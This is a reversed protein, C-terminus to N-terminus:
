WTGQTNRIEKLCCQAQQPKATSPTNVGFYGFKGIRSSGCQTTGQIPLLARVLLSPPSGSTREPGPRGQM